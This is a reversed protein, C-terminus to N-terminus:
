TLVTNDTPSWRCLTWLQSDTHGTALLAHVFGIRFSHMSYRDPDVITPGLTTLAQRLMADVTSHRMAEERGDATFLPTAARDDCPFDVEVDALRRAAKYPLALDCPLHVQTPWGLPDVKSPGLTLVAADGPALQVRAAPTLAAHVIGGVSWTLAARPVGFAYQAPQRLDLDVDLIHCLVTTTM